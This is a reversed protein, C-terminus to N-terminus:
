GRDVRNAFPFQEVQVICQVSQCFQISTLRLDRLQSEKPPSIDFLSSGNETDRRLLHVAVPSNRLGPQPALDPIRCMPEALGRRAFCPALRMRKLLNKFRPTSRLHDYKPDRTALWAFRSRPLSM